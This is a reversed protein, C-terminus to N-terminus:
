LWGGLDWFAFWILWLCAVVAGGYGLCIWLDLVVSFGFWGWGVGGAISLGCCLCAVM